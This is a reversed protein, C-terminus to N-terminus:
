PRRTPVLAFGFTWSSGRASGVRWCARVSLAPYREQRVVHLDRGGAVEEDDRRYGEPDQIREDDQGVVPQPDHVDRHCRVRRSSPGGPLDDLREWIVLRTVQETVAIPDVSQLKLEFGHRDLVQPNGRSRRLLVWVAFAHDTRESALAGVVHHREGGPVKLADQALVDLLEVVGRSRMEAETAIRRQGPCALFRRDILDLRRGDEAPQVVRVVARHSKGPWSAPRTMLSFWRPGLTDDGENVDRV